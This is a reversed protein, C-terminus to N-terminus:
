KLEHSHYIHGKKFKNGFTNGKMWHNNRGKNSQGNTNGILSLSLNKKHNDSRKPKAIGKLALSIKKRVLSSHRKGLRSNAIPLINYEPKITDIYYQEREICKDPECKELIEFRFNQEGYKNWARQLYINPHCNKRLYYLHTAKRRSLYNASSGIYKKNNTLNLIQYIGTIM